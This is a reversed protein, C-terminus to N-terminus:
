GTRFFKGEITISTSSLKSRQVPRGIILYETKSPNLCIRNNTFWTHILDLTFSQLSLPSHSKTPLFSIYLQTDDAYM